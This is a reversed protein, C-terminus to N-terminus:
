CATVLVHRPRLGRRCFPATAMCAVHIRLQPHILESSLVREQAYLRCLLTSCQHPVYNDFVPTKTITTGCRFAPPRLVHTGELAVGVFPM